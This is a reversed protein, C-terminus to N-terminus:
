LKTFISQLFSKFNNLLISPIIISKNKLVLVKSIGNMTKNISKVFILDVSLEAILTKDLTLQNFIMIAITNLQIIAIVVTM